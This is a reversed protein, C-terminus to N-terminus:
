SNMEKASTAWTKVPLTTVPIWTTQMGRGKTEAGRTESCFSVRRCGKRREALLPSEYVM